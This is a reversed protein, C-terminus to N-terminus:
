DNRGGKLTAELETASRQVDDWEGQAQMVYGILHLDGRNDVETWEEVPLDRVAKILKQAAAQLADRQAAIKEAEGQHLKFFGFPDHRMRHALGEWYGKYQDRKGTVRELENLLAPLTEIITHKADDILNMCSPTTAQKYLKRLRKIDIQDTM